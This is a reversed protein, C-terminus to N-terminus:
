CIFLCRCLDLDLQQNVLFQWYQCYHWQSQVDTRNSDNYRKFHDTDVMLLSLARQSRACREVIRHLASEMWRRNYLGTLSDNLANREHVRQQAYSQVVMLDNRRVRKSLIRLLNWTIVSSRNILSRFLESDIMLVQCASHAVVLASPRRKDIVSIEGVCEGPEVFVRRCYDDHTIRAEARGALIIYV